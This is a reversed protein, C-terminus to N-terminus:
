YGQEQKIHVSEVSPVAYACLLITVLLGFLSLCVSTTLMIKYPHLVGDQYFLMQGLTSLENTTDTIENMKPVNHEIRDNTMSPENWEETASYSTITETTNYMEIIYNQIKAIKIPQDKHCNM